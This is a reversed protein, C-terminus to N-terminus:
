QTKHPVGEFPNTIPPHPVGARLGDVDYLGVVVVV